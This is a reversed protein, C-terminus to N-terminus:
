LSRGGGAVRSFVAKEKGLPINKDLGKEFPVIFAFFIEKFKGVFPFCVPREEGAVCLVQQAFHGPCVLLLKEIYSRVCFFSCRNRRQERDDEMSRVKM